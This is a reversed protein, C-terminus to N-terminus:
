EERASAELVLDCARGVSYPHEVVLDARDTRPAVHRRYGPEAHTHWRDHVEQPDRGREAVDRELRRALRVSSPVELHVVLECHALVEDIALLLIGEVLLVESVAVPRTGSRVHQEFDYIPMAVTAGDVLADLHRALLGVDISGPADFDTRARAIPELHSLDRYYSDLSLTTLMGGGLRAALSAAITSKGSGSAGSLGWVKM